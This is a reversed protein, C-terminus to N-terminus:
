RFEAASRLLTPVDIRLPESAAHVGARDGDESEDNSDDEHHDQEDESPVPLAAPLRVVARRWLHPLARM